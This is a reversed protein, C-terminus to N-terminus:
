AARDLLDEFDAANRAAALETAVQELERTMMGEYLSQLLVTQLLWLLCLIAAAFLTFYSFLKVGISHKDFKM